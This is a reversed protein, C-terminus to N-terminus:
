SPVGLIRRVREALNSPSFPKRLFMESDPLGALQVAGRDPYGSMFLVKLKPDIEHLETYLDTGLGGPMVIDTLLLDIGGESNEFLVRAESPRGASLVHCGLRGLTREVIERVAAEDEVLLVTSTESFEPSFDDTHQGAAM